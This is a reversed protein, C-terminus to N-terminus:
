CGLMSAIYNIQGAHYKMNWYPYSASEKLSFAGWPMSVEEALDEDPTARIADVVKATNEELLSELSDWNQCVEAKRRSFEAMDAYEAPLVRDRLISVTAGNLLACEAVMDLATRANGQPSWNRKDEPLSLLATKLETMAEQASDALFNQLVNSM